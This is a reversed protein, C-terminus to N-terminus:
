CIYTLLIERIARGEKIAKTEYKTTTRDILMKESIDNVCLIFDNRNSFLDLLQLYYDEWDTIIHFLCNDSLKSKLNDFLSNSILRRKHHKKKKWPDPFYIQVRSLSKDPLDPLLDFIDGHYVKLNDIAEKDIKGLISGVGPSHVEAGFFIYNPYSKAAQILSKGIGFGVELIYQQNATKKESILFSNVSYKDYKELGRLQSSSIRGQRLVYSKIRFNNNISDM